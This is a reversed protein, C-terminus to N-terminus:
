STPVEVIVNTAKVVCVAADGIRLGLDDVAEATMLSVLRHAGAQVEVVAAVRDKEIRTVVGSFRNRASQARIPRDAVSRRREALLRQVAELRVVRQGGATRRAEIRGGREWRRLTEVSVGLMEAAEGIRM